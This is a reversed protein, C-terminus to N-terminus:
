GANKKQLRTKAERLRLLIQTRVSATNAVIDRLIEFENSTGRDIKTMSGESKELNAKGKKAQM